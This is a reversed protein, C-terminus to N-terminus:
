RIECLLSASGNVKVEWHLTAERLVEDAPQGWAGFRLSCPYCWVSTNPMPDEESVGRGRVRVSKKPQHLWCFKGKNYISIITDCDAECVRGPDYKKVKKNGYRRGKPRKGTLSGVM